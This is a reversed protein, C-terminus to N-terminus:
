SGTREVVVLDHVEVVLQPAFRRPARQRHHRLAGNIMVTDGQRLAAVKRRVRATSAIGDLLDVVNSPAPGRGPSTTRSAAIRFSWIQGELLFQRQPKTGRGTLRVENTPANAPERVEGAIGTALM